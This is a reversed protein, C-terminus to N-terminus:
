PDVFWADNGSAQMEIIQRDPFRQLIADRVGSENPTYDWALVIDSDLYPSTVAMLTGTARWRVDSRPGTVLVLIPREDGAARAYVEDIVTQNIFNFHYLPTIRPMSYAYLSFILLAALAGYLPRRWRQALWGLSVASLLALATLGEYYYRTSYRQSGIWYALHAIILGAPVALLLWTWVARRDAPRTLLVGGLLALLWLVGFGTWLTIPGGRAELPLALLPDLQLWWLFVVALWGWVWRRRIGLILGFPLLLWSLGVNPYYDGDNLLHNVVEPSIEGVQWGFLDAATLSLDWRTQRVGKDLRHGNRGCCAGFGVQDYSWVLTYLNLTPDGTAAQNFLPIATGMVITCVSLVLLPRLTMLVAALRSAPQERRWFAWVIRLGSWFVLPAAVGIATLPRAILVVGLAIGAVIGWKLASRGGKELRWYAYLFLTVFCLAATHGMLTGNLLLAMPSFATLAAAILGTDVGFIERGLRYALAVTLAGLFANIIWPQGFNVGIALLAPWGPTYKGFREGTPEYDVVFPQWYARKPQPSEIVVQGGAFVKAQFLYAVEDELHPLREFVTGSVLASLLVSFFVLGIVAWQQVHLTTKNIMADNYLLVGAGVM